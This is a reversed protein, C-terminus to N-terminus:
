NEQNNYCRNVFNDSQDSQNYWSDGRTDLTACRVKQSGNQGRGRPLLINQNQLNSNPMKALVQHAIYICVLSVAILWSYDLLFWVVFVAIVGGKCLTATFQQFCSFSSCVTAFISQSSRSFGTSLQKFRRNKEAIHEDSLVVIAASLAAPMM